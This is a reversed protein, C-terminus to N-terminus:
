NKGLYYLGIMELVMGTYISRIYTVIEKEANSSRM